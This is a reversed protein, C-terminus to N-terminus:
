EGVTLGHVLVQKTAGDLVLEIPKARRLRVLSGQRLGGRPTVEDRVGPTHGARRLLDASATAYTTVQRVRGEVDLRVVKEGGLALVPVAIAAVLVLARVLRTM